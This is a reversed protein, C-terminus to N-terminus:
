IINVNEEGLMKLHSLIKDMVHISLQSIKDMFQTDNGYLSDNSDVKDVHYPYCEQSIISLYNLADLYIKVKADSHIDFTYDEIVNLLGCFLYLPEQEPHDPVIILFSLLNAIYSVIFSETSKSKGDALEITQPVQPLLMIAAKLFADTQPLCTNVLAVQACNLYLQLRLFVDDLSPVTIFSYALCTRVFATTKKTHHGKVISRTSMALQNVSHVLYSIVNELNSFNARSDVMFNLHAEFDRDFSVMRLFDIILSSIQRKEDELTLANVSDHMTKCLYTMSNLIVPDSTTKFDDENGANFNKVFFEVIIKCADVKVSEKQLMDLFPIFSEMSFFSYFDNTSFKVVKSIISIINNYHDEFARDPQMHKVIDRLLTNIEKIGFHAVVFDMWIDACVIYESAKLRAIMKWVENLLILKQQDDFDVWSTEGSVFCSGLNKLLHYKPFTKDVQDSSAITKVMEVFRKARKTIFGPRFSTLISNLLLAYVGTEDGAATKADFDSLIEHLLSDSAKYVICQLIWDLTPTYLTLYTSYDVKQSSLLNRVLSSDFQKVTLFFDNLVQKFLSKESPVIQIAVRCVYTRAYMAVLPDGIGRTMKLLRKLARINEVKVNKEDAIFGYTKLIAAEVYLRPILERISAVKYFWNRCTEKASEIASNSEAKCHIRNYVFAGFNDLIDTILVFKSPYFQVVSVDALLKACQIVIKLAKVRQDQEWSEKLAANLEEIRCVYDQQTLNLMEKVSGEEFDDLQELRHKVKEAVSTNQLNRISSSSPGSVHGGVLFSTRISLRESTTYKSLIHSKKASWQEFDDEIYDNCIGTGQLKPKPKSLSYDVHPIIASEKLAASLPDIGGWSTSVRKENREVIKERISPVCSVRLPVLPHQAVAAREAAPPRGTNPRHKPHWEM